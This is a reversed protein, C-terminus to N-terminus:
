RAGSGAPSSSPRRDSSLACSRVLLARGAPGAHAHEVQAWTIAPGTHPRISASMPASTILTSFVSIPSVLRCIRVGEISPWDAAKMIIFRLLRPRATSRLRGCPAPPTSAGPACRRRASRSSDCPCWPSAPRRSRRDEGLDIGAQDVALDRAEAAGTGEGALAAEVQDRLGHRADHRDGALAGSPRRDLTPGGIVSMVAPRIAAM